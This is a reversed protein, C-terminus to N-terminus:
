SKQPLRTPGPSRDSHPRLGTSVESPWFGGGSDRRGVNDPAAGSVALTAVSLFPIGPSLRAWPCGGAASLGPGQVAQRPQGKYMRSPMQRGWASDGGASVPGPSLM